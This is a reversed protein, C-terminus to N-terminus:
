FEGLTAGADAPHETDKETQSLWRLAARCGYSQGFGAQMQPCRSVPSGMWVLVECLAWTGRSTALTSTQTLSDPGLAPDINPGSGFVSFFPPFKPKSRPGLFPIFPPPPTRPERATSAWVWVRAAGVPLGTPPESLIGPVCAQTGVCVGSGSGASLLAGLTPWVRSRAGQPPSPVLCGNLSPLEKLPLSLQFSAMGTGWRM